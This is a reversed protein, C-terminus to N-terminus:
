NDGNEGIYSKLEKDKILHCEKCVYWFKDYEYPITYHHHSIAMESCFECQKGLLPFCHKTKDRIIAKEINRLRTLKAKENINKRIQPNSNRYIRKHETIREKNKKHYERNRIIDKQRQVETRIKKTKGNYLRGEKDM